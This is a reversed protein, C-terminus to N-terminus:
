LARVGRGHPPVARAERAARRASESIREGGERIEDGNEAHEDMDDIVGERNLRWPDLRTAEADEDLPDIAATQLRGDRPRAVALWCIGLGILATPLPNDRVSAGLGYAFDSSVRRVPTLSSNLENWIRSPSLKVELAALTAAIDTRTQEIEEMIQEPKGAVDASM